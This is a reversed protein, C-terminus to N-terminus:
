SKNGVTNIISYDLCGLIKHGNRPSLLDKETLSIELNNTNFRRRLIKLLQEWRFEVDLDGAVKDAFKAVAAMRDVRWTTINVGLLRTRTWISRGFISRPPDRERPSIRKPVDQKRCSCNQLRRARTSAQGSIECIPKTQTERASHLNWNPSKRSVRVNSM